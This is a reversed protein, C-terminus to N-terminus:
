KTYPANRKITLMVRGLQEDVYKIVIFTRYDHSAPVIIKVNRTIERCSCNRLPESLAM